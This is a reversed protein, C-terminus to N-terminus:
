DGNVIYTCILNNMNYQLIIINFLLANGNIEQLRWSGETMVLSLFTRIADRCSTCNCEILAVGQTSLILIVAWLTHQCCNFM